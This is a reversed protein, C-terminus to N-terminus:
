FVFLSVCFVLCDLLFDSLAYSTEKEGFKGFSVCRSLEGFNQCGKQELTPCVLEADNREFLAVWQQSIKLRLLRLHDLGVHLTHELYRTVLLVEEESEMLYQLDGGFQQPMEIISVRPFSGNVDCVAISGFRNVAYFLGRRFIVDESYSQAVVLFTWSGDGRRCFALDGTQNLIVIAMFDSDNGPSSSLITKKIFSDRM